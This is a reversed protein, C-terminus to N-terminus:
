ALSIIDPIGLKSRRNYFNYKKREEIREQYEFKDSDNNVLAKFM